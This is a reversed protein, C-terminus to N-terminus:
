CCYSFDRVGTLQDRRRKEKYLIEEHFNKNARIFLTSKTGFNACRTPSWVASGGITSETGLYFNYAFFLLVIGEM